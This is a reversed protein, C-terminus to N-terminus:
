QMIVLGIVNCHHKSKLHCSKVSEIYFYRMYMNLIIARKVKLGLPLIPWKWMKQKNSQLTIVSHVIKLHLTDNSKLLLLQREFFYLKQGNINHPSNTFM